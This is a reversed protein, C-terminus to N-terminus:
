PLRVDPIQAGSDFAFDPNSDSGTADINIAANNMLTEFDFDYMEYDSLANPNTSPANSIPQTTMNHDYLLHQQHTEPYRQNPITSPRSATSPTSTGSSTQYSFPRPQNVLALNSPTPAHWQGVGVKFNDPFLDRLHYDFQPAPRNSIGPIGKQPPIQQNFHHPMIPSEDQQKKFKVQAGFGTTSLCMKITAKSMRNFADRCAEAPPCKEMLDSLVSTAALVTLDVDELTKNSTLVALWLTIFIYYKGFPQSCYTFALYFLSVCDRDGKAFWLRLVPWTM